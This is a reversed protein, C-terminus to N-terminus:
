NNMISVMAILLYEKRGKSREGMRSMEAKLVTQLELRLERVAM